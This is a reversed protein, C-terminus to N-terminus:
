ELSHFFHPLCNTLVFKQSVVPLCSVVSENSEPAEVSSGRSLRSINKQGSIEGDGVMDGNVKSGQLPPVLTTPPLVTLPDIVKLHDGVMTSKEMVSRPSAVSSDNDPGSENQIASRSPYARLTEVSNRNDSTVDRNDLVFDYESPTITSPSHADSFPNAIDDPPSLDGGGTEATLYEGTLTNSSVSTVPVPKRTVVRPRGIASYNSAAPSVGPLDNVAANQGYIEPSPTDSRGMMRSPSPFPSMRPAPILFSDPSPAPPVAANDSFPDTPYESSYGAALSTDQIQSM